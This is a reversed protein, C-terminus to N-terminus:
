HFIYELSCYGSICKLFIQNRWTVSTGTCSLFTFNNHILGVQTWKTAGDSKKTIGYFLYVVLIFSIQQVKKHKTSKTILVLEGYKFTTERWEWFIQRCGSEFFVEKPVFYKHFLCFLEERKSAHVGFFSELLLKIDHFRIM